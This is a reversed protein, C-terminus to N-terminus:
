NETNNEKRRQKIQNQKQTKTNTHKKNGKNQKTKTHKKNRRQKTKQCKSYPEFIHNYLKEYLTKM